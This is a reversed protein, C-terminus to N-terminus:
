QRRNSVRKTFCLPVNHKVFLTLLRLCHASPVGIDDARFLVPLPTATRRHELAGTLTQEIQTIGNDPFERYLACPKSRMVM